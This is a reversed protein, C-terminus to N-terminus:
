YGTTQTYLGKRVEMQSQPIPYLYMNQTVRNAYTTYNSSHSSDYTDRYTAFKAKEDNVFTNQRVEDFWRQGEGLLEYRRETKVATQFADSTLGSLSSQGARSRILNLCHYGETTNGVIEAYGLMVDELRILPFNQPWYTRDVIEADMDYVGLNARKIKNEFFKVLFNNAEQPGGIYTGTEEDYTQAMNITGETRADSFEGDSLTDLFHEQLAREVYVHPGVTLNANCYEDASTNSTRCIPTMPNGQSKACIYQIEFLAYKNDNEHLWIKEWEDSTSAWYMGPAGSLAGSSVLVQRYLIRASDQTDQYLPYGAMQLYVKGLLAKAALRSVRESHTDGLYDTAISDLNEIAFRLDPVIVKEYVDISESQKLNFADSTSLTTTSVPVRGFFRVLDFYSLARLFRAEAQYQISPSNDLLSNAAAILTYHDDWCADVISNTLLSSTNFQACDAYKTQSQRQPKL